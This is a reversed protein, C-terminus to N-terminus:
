EIGHDLKFSVRNKSTRQKKLKKREVNEEQEQKRKAKLKKEEEKKKRIELKEKETKNVFSHYKVEGDFIGEEIKVLKLSLRPGIETLKVSNVEVNTPMKEEIENVKEIIKRNLPDKIGGLLEISDLTKRKVLKVENDRDEFESDSTAYGNGKHNDLADSITKFKKLDLTKTNTVLRKLSKTVGRQSLSVLFHRMEFSDNEKDFNFLVVRRCDSVKITGLNIKPFISQFSLGTLSVAKSKAFSLESENLSTDGLSEFNNLVVLPSFDFSRLPDFYKKKKNAVLKSRITKMLAYKEVRFSLTPGVPTKALKLVPGRKGESIAM